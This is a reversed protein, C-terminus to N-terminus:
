VIIDKRHISRLSREGAAKCASGVNSRHMGKVRGDGGNGRRVRKRRLLM